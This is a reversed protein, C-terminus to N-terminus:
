RIPSSEGELSRYRRAAACGGRPTRLPPTPDASTRWTCLHLHAPRWATPTLLLERKM